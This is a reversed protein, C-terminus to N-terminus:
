KLTMGGAVLIGIMIAIAIGFVVANLMAYKFKSKTRNKFLKESITASMIGVLFLFVIFGANQNSVTVQTWRSIEIKGQILDTPNVWGTKIKGAEWEHYTEAASLIMAMDNTTAKRITSNWTRDYPFDLIWLNDQEMTMKTEIINQEKFEADYQPLLTIKKNTESSYLWTDNKWWGGVKLWIYSNDPLVDLSNYYQRTIGTSDLNKGIDYHQTNYGMLFVSSLAVLGTVGILARKKTMLESGKVALLGAFPFGVVMYRYVQPALDTLYYIMIFITLFILLKGEIDKSGKKLAQWIAPLILLGSTAFSIATVMIFDQLRQIADTEFIALGGILGGQDFFYNMYDSPKNGDIWVYPPNNAFPVYMYFLLGMVPLFMKPELPIMKGAAKLRLTDVIFFIGLPILILHHVGIGIMLTAYKARHQEKVHFWYALTWLLTMPAYTEIITAQSVVMGSACYVLPAIFRKWESKTYRRALRYVLMTTLGSCIASIMSLMWFENNFPYLKLILWNFMNFLPAGTPHSLEGFKAARLYGNADSACNVWSLDPAVMIAFYGTAIALVLIEKWYRIFFQKTKLNM